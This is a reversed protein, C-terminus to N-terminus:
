IVSQNGSITTSLLLGFIRWKFVVHRVKTGGHRTDRWLNGITSNLIRRTMRSYHRWLRWKVVNNARLCATKSVLQTQRCVHEEKAVMKTYHREDTYVFFIRFM